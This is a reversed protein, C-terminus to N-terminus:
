EAPEDNPLSTAHDRREPGATTVSSASSRRTMLAPIRGANSATTRMCLAAPGGRLSVLVARYRELYERQRVDLRSCFTVPRHSATACVLEQSSGRWNICTVARKDRSIHCQQPVSLASAASGGAPKGLLVGRDPRQLLSRAPVPDQRKGAARRNVDDHVPGAGRRAARM